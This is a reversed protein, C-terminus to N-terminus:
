TPLKSFPPLGLWQDAVSSDRHFHLQPIMRFTSLVTVSGKGYISSGYVRVTDVLSLTITAARVNANNILQISCGPLTDAASTSMMKLCTPETCPPCIDTGQPVLVLQATACCPRGSAKSTIVPYADPRPYVSGGSTSRAYITPFTVGVSHTFTVLPPRVNEHSPM